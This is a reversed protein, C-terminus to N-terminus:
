LTCIKMDDAILASILLLGKIPLAESTIMSVIPMRLPSLPSVIPFPRNLPNRLTTV